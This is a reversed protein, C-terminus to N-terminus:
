RSEAENIAKSFRENCIAVGVPLVTPLALVYALREPVGDVIAIHAAGLPGLGSM